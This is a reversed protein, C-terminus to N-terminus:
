GGDKQGERDKKVKGENGKERRDAVRIGGGGWCVSQGKDKLIEQCSILLRSM